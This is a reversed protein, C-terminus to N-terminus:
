QCKSLPTPTFWLDREVPQGLPGRVTELEEISFYGLERELGIVLGFALREIADLETVYWTWYSDPTFLKLWAVPDNNQEQEYLKPIKEVMAPPVLEYAPNSPDRPIM